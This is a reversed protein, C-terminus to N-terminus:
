STKVAGKADLEAGCGACTHGGWMAQQANQPARIRPQERGCAACKVPKRSVVLWGIVFIAMVVGIILGTLLGDM